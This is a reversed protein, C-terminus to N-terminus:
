GGSVPPLVTVTEGDAPVYDLSQRVGDVLVVMVLESQIGWGNLIGRVSMAETMEVEVTDKKGPFVQQLYGRTRLTVHM